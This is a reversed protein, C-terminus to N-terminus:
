QSRRQSQLNRVLLCYRPLGILVLVGLGILMVVTVQWRHPCVQIGRRSGTLIQGLRLHPLVRHSSGFSGRSFLLSLPM